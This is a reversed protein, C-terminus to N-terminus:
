VLVDQWNVGQRTFFAKVPSLMASLQAPTLDREDGQVYRNHRLDLWQQLRQSARSPKAWYPWGDSSRNTWEVLQSLARAGKLANPYTDAREAYFDLAEEVDWENMWSM